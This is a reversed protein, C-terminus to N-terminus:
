LLVVILGARTVSVGFHGAHIAAEFLKTIM